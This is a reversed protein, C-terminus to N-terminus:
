EITIEVKEDRETSEIDVVKGVKGSEILRMVDAIRIGHEELQRRQAEPLFSGLMKALGIPVSFNVKEHGTISDYVRVRLVRRGEVPEEVKTQGQAEPGASELADILRAGEEASLQGAEIMRLIRMREENM